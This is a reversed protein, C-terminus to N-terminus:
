GDEVPITTEPQDGRKPLTLELVGRDLAASAGSATADPPLPLELDLFVDRDEQRFEFAAPVDKQRRAEIALRGREFRVDVTEATVGPLDIVLLYADDSELLDAFVTQPLERLAERLASM